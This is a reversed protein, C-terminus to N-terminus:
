EFNVWKEWDGDAFKAGVMEDAGMQLKIKAPQLDLGARL